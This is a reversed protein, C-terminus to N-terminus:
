NQCGVSFTVNESNGRQTNLLRGDAGDVVQVQFLYQGTELGDIEASGYKVPLEGIFNSAYDKLFVFWSSVSEPQLNAPDVVTGCAAKFGKYRWFLGSADSTQTFEILVHQGPSYRSDALPSLIRPAPLRGRTEVGFWNVVSYDTWKFVPAITRGVNM